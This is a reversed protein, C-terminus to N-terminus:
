VTRRDLIKKLEDPENAVILASEKEIVKNSVLASLVQPQTQMASSSQGLQMVSYIQHIKDERILNAIATSNILIEPAAVLGSGIKPVLVQSAIAVLSASLMSRIQAQKGGEFIDVIRRITGVASASHLTALVLHGTEAASLATAITETDRMEGILIVDPDQRLAHKLAADFTDTDQGVERHSFISKKNEHIFEVPDEITVIRKQKTRNIEDLMAALTTSKGSGTSGTVLILGQKHELISKYIDPLSLEDLTPIEDPIARFTAGVDGLTYYYNARFRGVGDISVGFDLERSKKFRNKQKDSILSFCISKIDKSSLKPANIPKLQGEIRLVPPTNPVLHLDSAKHAVVSQLLKTIYGSEV